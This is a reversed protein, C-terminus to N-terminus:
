PPKEIAPSAPKVMRSPRLSSPGSCTNMLTSTGPPMRSSGLEPRLMLSKAAPTSNKLLRGESSSGNASREVMAPSGVESVAAVQSLENCAWVAACALATAALGDM